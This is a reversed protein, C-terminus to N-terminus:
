NSKGTAIRAIKKRHKDAAEHIMDDVLDGTEELANTGEIWFPIAAHIYLFGQDQLKYWEEMRNLWGVRLQYRYAQTAKVKHEVDASMDTGTARGPKGSSASPRSDIMQKAAVEAIEGITEMEQQISPLEKIARRLPDTYQRVRFNVRAM